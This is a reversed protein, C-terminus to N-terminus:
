PKVKLYLEELKKENEPTQNRLMEWLIKKDVDTSIFNKDYITYLYRKDFKVMLLWIPKCWAMGKDPSFDYQPNEGLKFLRGYVADAVWEEGNINLICTFHITEEYLCPFVDCDVGNNGQKEGEEDWGTYSIIYDAMIDYVCAIDNCFPPVLVKEHHSYYYSLPDRPYNLMEYSRPVQANPYEDKGRPHMAHPVHEYVMQSLNQFTKVKNTRDICFLTDKRMEENLYDVLVEYVLEELPESDIINILGDQDLDGFQHLEEETVVTDQVIQKLSNLVIVNLQVDRSLISIEDILAKENEDMGNERLPKIIEIVEQFIGRPFPLSEAYKEIENKDFNLEAYSLTPFLLIILVILLAKKM